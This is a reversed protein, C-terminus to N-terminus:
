RVPALVATRNVPPSEGESVTYIADDTWAVAEGQSEGAVPIECPTRAFTVAWDEGPIRPFGWASLYTRLVVMSGDPAIDGGTVLTTSGIGGEGFQLEAVIELEGETVAPDGVRGVRTQGSFDKSVLLLDGTVPDALLTECDTPGDPWTRQIARASVEEAGAMPVAVDYLFVWPRLTLNDGVDALWLHGDLAALDEWDVIPADRVAVRREVAGSPNMGFLLPAGSDNHTWLLGDAWALGSAEVLTPDSVVGVTEPTGFGPCVPEVVPGSSDVTPEGTGEDVPEEAGSCGWLAGM